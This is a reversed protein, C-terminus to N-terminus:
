GRDMFVPLIQSVFLNLDKIKWAYGHPMWCVIHEYDTNSLIAYLKTLMDGPTERFCEGKADKSTSLSLVSEISSPQLVQLDRTENIAHSIIQSICNSRPAASAPLIPLRDSQHQSLALRLISQSTNSFNRNNVSMGDILWSM